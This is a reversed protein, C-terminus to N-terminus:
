INSILNIPPIKHIHRYNNCTTRTMECQNELNYVGNCISEQVTEGGSIVWNLKTINFQKAYAWVIEHWGDIFYLISLM